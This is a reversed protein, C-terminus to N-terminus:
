PGDQYLRLSVNEGRQGESPLGQRLRPDAGLHDLSGPGGEGQEFRAVWATLDDVYARRQHEDLGAVLAMGWAATLTALATVALPCGPPMGSLPPWQEGLTGAVRLRRPAHYQVLLPGLIRPHLGGRALARRLQPLRVSDYCKSFDCALGAVM